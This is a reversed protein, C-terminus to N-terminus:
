RLHEGQPDGRHLVVRLFVRRDPLRNAVLELFAPGLHKLRRTGRERSAPPAPLIRQVLRLNREEEGALASLGLLGRHEEELEGVGGVRGVDVHTSASVRGEGGEEVRDVAWRLRKQGRPNGGRLLIVSRQCASEKGKGREGRTRLADKDLIPKPWKKGGDSREVAKWIRYVRGGLRALDPGRGCRGARAVLQAIRRCREAM